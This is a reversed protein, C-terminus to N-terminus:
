TFGTAAEVVLAALSFDTGVVGVDAASAAPFIQVTTHVLGAAVAEQAFVDYACLVAVAGFSEVAIHVM